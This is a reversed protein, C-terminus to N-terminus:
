NWKNHQEKYELVGRERHSISVIQNLKCDLILHLTSLPTRWALCVVCHAQKPAHKNTQPDYFKKSDDSSLASLLVVWKPHLANCPLRYNLNMKTEPTLAWTTEDYAKILPTDETLYQLPHLCAYPQRCTIFRTPWDVSSLTYGTIWPYPTLLTALKDATGSYNCHSATKPTLKKALFKGIPYQLEPWANEEQKKAQKMQTGRARENRVTWAFTWWKLSRYFSCFLHIRQPYWIRPRWSFAYFRYSNFSVELVEMSPAKIFDSIKGAFVMM